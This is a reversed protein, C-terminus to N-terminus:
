PRTVTWYRQLPGDPELEQDLRFSIGYGPFAVVAGSELEFGLADIQPQFFILSEVGELISVGDSEANGIKLKSKFRASLSLGGASQEVSPIAPADRDTYICPEALNEHIATRADSKIQSMSM